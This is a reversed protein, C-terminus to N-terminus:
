FLSSVHNWSLVLANEILMVFSNTSALMPKAEARFHFACERGYMRLIFSSWRVMWTYIMFTFCILSSTLEFITSISDRYSNRISKHMDYYTHSGYM